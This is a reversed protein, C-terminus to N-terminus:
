NIVLKKTTTANDQSIKMIYIGSSLTSVDLRNNDVTKNIVQKGLVDFVSVKMSIQSKSSINVYGISTPNPYVKFSNASFEGSSLTLDSMSRVYIQSTGNFEGAVGVIAPQLGSPILQGIYDASFFDTRKVVTDVGDTVNYNTGTSFTTVGNGDVFTINNIRILESEYDDPAANFAAITVVQPTVPNGSSDISGSDEFPVFRLVGASEETYGKLGSVNDGVTFTTSVSGSDYMLIGTINGDQIWQRNNFGDTHTVLSTGTIQYFKGLGNAIVDSRLTSIDAVNTLSAVDFSIMDTDIVGGDILEVTINYNQGDSTAVPFPSSVSNTTSGNVTIDVTEGGGLNATSWEVNVSTTGPPLVSNDLPSTLSISPNAVYGDIIRIYDIAIDEDGSELNTFTIRIDASTGNGISAIFEQFTPTLLTSDAIGDFDTDLGPETNTAGGSSFQILKTYGGGDINIEVLVSADADWDEFGDSSDDEAALMAFTMNTFASIDIGTFDLTLIAPGGDGNTDMAAFYYSADQGSVVYYSPVTATTGDTRTFFDGGTGDTFEPVSTSYRSGNGDTEFSEELVTTQGLCVASILITFLLFYLKNM